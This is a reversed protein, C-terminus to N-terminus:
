DKFSLSVGEGGGGKIGLYLPISVPDDNRELCVAWINSLRLTLLLEWSVHSCSLGERLKRHVCGARRHGQFTVYIFYGQTGPCAKLLKKM